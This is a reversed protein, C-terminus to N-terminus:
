GSADSGARVTEVEIEFLLDRRCIDTHALVMPFNPIGRDRCYKEFVPVDETRALYTVAKKTDSWGMSRSEMLAEVVRMTLDIQGAIDDVHVTRGEPDISATGSVYLRRHDPYDIEVARSFSSKYDLAPCQMPSPVAFVKVRDDKPRVAMLDAVLAAGSTNGAGIGTSAPVMHEFVGHRSFFDTRVENFPGYWDLLGDLYFWTRAIDTCAMGVSELARKMSEFTEGAQESRSRSTDSPRIDGLICYRALDDEYCHGLIRGDLDVPAVEVSRSMAMLQTGVLAPESPGEGTIWTVPWALEGVEREIAGVDVDHLESGGFVFQHIIRAQKERVFEVVDKFMPLLDRSDEPHATIHHKSLHEGNVSVVKFTDSFSAAVGTETM